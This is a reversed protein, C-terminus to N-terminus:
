FGRKKLGLEEIETESKPIMERKLKQNRESNKRFKKYTKRDRGGESISMLAAARQSAAKLTNPPM